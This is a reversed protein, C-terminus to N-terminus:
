STASATYTLAGASMLTASFEAAGDHEGNLSFESIFFDGSVTGPVALTSPLTVATTILTQSAPATMVRNLLVEDESVGAVTIEAARVGPEALLTRVGADDDNTVDVPTQSISLGKSRIGVLTTGTAAVTLARGNNAAM